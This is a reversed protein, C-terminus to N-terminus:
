QWKIGSLSSTDHDYRMETCPATVELPEYGSEAGISNFFADWEEDSMDKTESNNESQKEAPPAPPTPTPTTSNPNKDILESSVEKNANNKNKDVKTFEDVTKKTTSISASPIYGDKGEYDVVYWGNIEGYTLTEQNFSIMGLVESKLDMKSYVKTDMAAYVYYGVRDSNPDLIEKNMLEVMWDETTTEEESSEELTSTDVNALASVDVEDNLKVPSATDVAPESQNFEKTKNHIVFVLILSLTIVIPSIYLIIKKM